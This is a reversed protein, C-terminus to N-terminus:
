RAYNPLILIVLKGGNSIGLNLPIFFQKVKGPKIIKKNLYKWSKAPSKWSKAPSMVVVSPGKKVEENCFTLLWKGGGVLLLLCACDM